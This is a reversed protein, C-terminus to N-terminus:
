HKDICNKVLQLSINKFLSRVLVYNYSLQFENIFECFDFPDKVFFANDKNYSLTIINTVLQEIGRNPSNIGSIIPRLQIHNTSKRCAIFRILLVMIYGISKADINNLMGKKELESILKNSKQQVTSSNKDLIRYYQTGRLIENALLYYQQKSIIITVNM